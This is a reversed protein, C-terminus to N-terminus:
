GEAHSSASGLYAEVVRPDVSVEAPTGSMLPVGHDIVHIRAAVQMVLRMDHEILLVALGEACLEDLLGMLANTEVRNMGAAPEDLLLVRPKAAIARAIELRRRNGHDLNGALQLAHRDLGVRRLHTMAVERAQLHRRRAGFLRDGIAAWWGIRHGQLGGLVVNDLASLQDFLRVQQFTRALGLRAIQEMSRGQLMVEGADGQLVVEGRDPSFLGTICNFLTTKGAGNPGIVATVEGAPVELSVGQLAKLGQFSKYVDRVQLTM